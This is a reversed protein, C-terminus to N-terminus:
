DGKELSESRKRSRESAQKLYEQREARRAERASQLQQMSDPRNVARISVGGATVRVSTGPSVLMGSRGGEALAQEIRAMGSSAAATEDSVPRASSNKAM